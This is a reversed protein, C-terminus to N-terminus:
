HLYPGREPAFKTEHQDHTPESCITTLRTPSPMAEDQEWTPEPHHHPAHHPYVEHHGDTPDPTAMSLPNTKSNTNTKGHSFDEAPEMPDLGKDEINVIEIKTTSLNTHADPRCNTHTTNAMEQSCNTPTPNATETASSSDGANDVHTNALTYPKFVNPSPQRFATTPPSSINTSPQISTTSPKTNPYINASPLSPETNSKTNLRNPPAWGPDKPIGSLSTKKCALTSSSDTASSTNSSRTMSENEVEPKVHTISSETADDHPHMLTRDQHESNSLIPM